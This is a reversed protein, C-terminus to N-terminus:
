RQQIYENIPCIGTSEMVDAVWPYEWDRDKARWSTMGATQWSARHHFVEMVKLMAGMVVWSYSGYILM